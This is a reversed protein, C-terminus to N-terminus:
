SMMKIFTTQSYRGMKNCYSFGVYTILFTKFNKKWEIYALASIHLSFTFKLINTRLNSISYYIVAEDTIRGWISELTWISPYLAAM